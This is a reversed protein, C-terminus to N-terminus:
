RPLFMAARRISIGSLRYKASVAGLRADEGSSVWACLIWWCMVGWLQCQKPTLRM